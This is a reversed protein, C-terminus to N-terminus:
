TAIGLVVLSFVTGLNVFAILKTVKKVFLRFNASCVDSVTFCLQCHLGGSRTVIECAWLIM